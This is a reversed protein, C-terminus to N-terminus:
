GYMNRVAFYLKHSQTGHDQRPSSICAISPAECPRGNTIPCNIMGIGCEAAIPMPANVPIHVMYMWTPVANGSGHGNM